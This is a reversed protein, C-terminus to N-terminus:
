RHQDLFRAVERAKPISPQAGARTVSLAAAASAYRLAALLRDGRALRAALAGNFTDGAATEDVARVRFPSIATVGDPGALLAGRSGLKVVVARAGRILLREAARLPDREGTLVCAEHDNPTLLDVGQLLRDPLRMAPAPDLIIRCRGAAVKVIGAVTAIPIELQLLV